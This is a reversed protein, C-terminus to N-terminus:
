VTLTGSSCNNICLDKDSKVCLFFLGNRQGLGLGLGLQLCWAMQSRAVASSQQRSSHVVGDKVCWGLNCYLIIRCLIVVNCSTFIVYQLSHHM